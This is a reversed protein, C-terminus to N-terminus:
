WAAGVVQGVPPLTRGGRLVQGDVSQEELDVRLRHPLRFAVPAVKLLDDVVGQFQHLIQDLCLSARGCPSVEHGRHDHRLSTAQLEIQEGGAASLPDVAAEREAEVHEGHEFVGPVLLGRGGGTRAVSAPAALWRRVTSASVGNGGAMHSLPQDHRLVALVILAIRGPLLKRRRSRIKKLHGRILGALMDLTTSSLPLRCQYVLGDTGKAPRSNKSM